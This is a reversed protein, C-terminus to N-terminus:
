AFRAILYDSTSGFPMSSSHGAPATQLHLTASAWSHRKPLALFEDVLDILGARADVFAPQVRRHCPSTPPQAARIDVLRLGSLGRRCHM